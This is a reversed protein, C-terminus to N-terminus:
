VFPLKELIWNRIRKASIVGGWVPLELIVEREFSEALDKATQSAFTELSPGHESSKGKIAAYGDLGPPVFMNLVNIALHYSGFEVWSFLRNTNCVSVPVNTVEFFSEGRKCRFAVVGFERPDLNLTIQGEKEPIEIEFPRRKTLRYEDPICAPDPWDLFAEDQGMSREPDARWIEAITQCHTVIERIDEPLMKAFFEADEEADFSDGYTSLHPIHRMEKTQRTRRVEEAFDSRLQSYDLQGQGSDRVNEAFDSKAFEDQILGGVFSLFGAPIAPYQGFLARIEQASAKLLETLDRNPHWNTVLYENTEENFSADAKTYEHPLSDYGAPQFLGFQIRHPKFAQMVGAIFLDFNNILSLSSFHDWVAFCLLSGPQGEMVICRVEGGESMARANTGHEGSESGEGTVTEQSEATGRPGRVQSLFAVRGDFIVNHGGIKQPNTVRRIADRGILPYRGDENDEQRLFSDYAIRTAELIERRATALDRELDESTGALTPLRDIIAELRALESIAVVGLSELARPISQLALSDIDRTAEHDLISVLATAAAQNKLMAIASVIGFRVFQDKEAIFAEQLTPVVWDARRGLKGLNCAAEIRVRDTQSSLANKFEDLAVVYDRPVNKLFQLAGSAEEPSGSELASVARRIEKAADDPSM